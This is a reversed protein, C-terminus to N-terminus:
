VTAERQVSVSVETGQGPQSDISLQAGIHEARESMGLLGFGQSLTTRNVEFGQGNDRVRLYCQTPKYVLEIRIENAQAYKVANTFAEQGIRLLNNETDPPLAYPAGSIECILRTETSSQLSSVFQKLATWLNGDELLQPRLAAVSRRAETLGSRALDRVTQIHSQIADPNTKALRSIAGMHVLVGTFAQALTDHIERAMRNREELISAAEAQKLATIDRSLWIVREHRIPAIRASFWTERGDIQLSYEVTLVQQTRLAQQIYHMFADAQEAEFIQHLTKGVKEEVPSYLQRPNGEITEIVRGEATVVCLPDPIASFLARLEAESAQLAVEAQKRDSIDSIVGEMCEDAVNPRASYLAWFLTGDRKRLQVEFNQLTGDRNLLEIARQRDSSNVYCDVGHLLGIVQDPSDFGFLNAFRQNADLILGDSLRARFIGVQSNEFINRFKAESRQLAAEAQKRQTIDTGVSLIEVLQGQEDLIAQNSWAVWVRRGDRCLNEKETQLYSAPNHFLEHIFQEVSRESTESEPRITELLTRGLIQHEEYGFFRLGYDNLFRIRGQTDFRIIISNATQVLNRYNAESKRLAAEAQKRESVDRQVGFQGILRGQSDYLCIYYGEVWMATGDLRREDTEIHLKGADFLHRWIEKRYALDHAFAEKPTIGVFQERSARYQALMADNIKTIRLHEFIYDLVQDKDVSSDWQVPQDLMM